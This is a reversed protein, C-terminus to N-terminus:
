MGESIRSSMGNHLLKYKQKRTVLPQCVRARLGFGALLRNATKVNRFRQFSLFSPSSLLGCMVFGLINVKQLFLKGVESRSQGLHPPGAGM